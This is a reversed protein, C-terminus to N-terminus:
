FTLFSKGELWREFQNNQSAWLAEINTVAPSVQPQCVGRWEVGFPTSSCEVQLYNEDFHPRKEVSKM